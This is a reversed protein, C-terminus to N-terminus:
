LHYHFKCQLQCLVWTTQPWLAYKRLSMKNQQQWYECCPIESLRCYQYRIAPEVTYCWPWVDEDPNRCYNEAATMNDDPFDAETQEHIHPSQSDWRQCAYGGATVSITGSYGRLDAQNCSSRDSVFLHWRGEIQIPCFQVRSSYIDSSMHSYITILFLSIM